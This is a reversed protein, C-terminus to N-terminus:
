VDYPNSPLLSVSLLNNDVIVWLKLLTTLNGFSNDKLEEMNNISLSRWVILWVFNFNILLGTLWKMM